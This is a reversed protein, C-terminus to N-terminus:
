IHILSLDVGQTGSTIMRTVANGGAGGVGVVKLKAKQETLSDFEFMM